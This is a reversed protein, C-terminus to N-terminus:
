RPLSTWTRGAIILGLWLLSYFWLATSILRDESANPTLWIKVPRALPATVISFFWLLKSDPKRSLRMVLKHLALYVVAM